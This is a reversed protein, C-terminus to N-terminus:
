RHKTASRPDTAGRKRPVGRPWSRPRLYVFWYVGGVLLAGGIINGITVPLLNALFFDGWTLNSLDGSTLGAAERVSSEEKLLIGMPIFYM